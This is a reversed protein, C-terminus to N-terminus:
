MNTLNLYSNRGYSILVDYLSVNINQHFCVRHRKPSAKYEKLLYKTIEYNAVPAVKSNLFSTEAAIKDIRM